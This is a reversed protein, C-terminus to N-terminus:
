RKTVPASKTSKSPPLDLVRSRAIAASYHLCDAGSVIRDLAAKETSMGPHHSILELLHEFEGTAEDFSKERINQYLSDFFIAGTDSLERNKKM